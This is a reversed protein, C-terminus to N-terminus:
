TRNATQLGLAAIVDEIPLGNDDAVQRALTLAHAALVPILRHAGGVELTMAAVIRLNEEPSLQGNRVEHTAAIVGVAARMLRNFEDPNMAHKRRRPQQSM